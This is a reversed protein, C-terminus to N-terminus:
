PVLPQSATRLIRHTIKRVLILM